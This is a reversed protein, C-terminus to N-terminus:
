TQPPQLIANGLAELAAKLEANEIPALGTDLRAQQAAPLPATAAPKEKKGKARKPLPGKKMAVRGIARYGFYTSIKEIIIPELHQVELAWGSAVLLHLTGNGREGKQFSLKTPLSHEALVPGVITSWETIIRAEALGHKKFAPRTVSDMVKSLPKPFISYTRYTKEKEVM